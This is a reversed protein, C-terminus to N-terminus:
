NDWPPPTPPLAQDSVASCSEQSCLSQLWVAPTSVWDQRKRATHSQAVGEGRQAKTQEDIFHLYDCYKGQLATALTIHTLIQLSNSAPRVTLGPQGPNQCGDGYVCAVGSHGPPKRRLFGPKPLRMAEWPRFKETSAM